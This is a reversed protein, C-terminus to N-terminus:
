KKKRAAWLVSFPVNKLGKEELSALLIPLIALDLPTFHMVGIEGQALPGIKELAYERNKKSDVGDKAWSYSDRMWHVHKDNLEYLAEQVLINIPGEAFPVRALGPEPFAEGFVEPYDYDEFTRFAKKIVAKTKGRIFLHNHTHNGIQHGEAKVDQWLSPTTLMVKGVPFITFRVSEREGRANEYQYDNAIMLFEEVRDPEWGDDLGICVYPMDTKVRLIPWARPLETGMLAELEGGLENGWDGTLFRRRSLEKRPPM